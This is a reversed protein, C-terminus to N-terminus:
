QLLILYYYYWLLIAYTLVFLITSSIVTQWHHHHHNNQAIIFMTLVISVIISSIRGFILKSKWTEMWINESLLIFTNSTKRTNQTINLRTLAVHLLLPRHQFVASTPFLGTSKWRQPLMIGKATLSIQLIIIDAYPWLRCFARLDVPIRPLYVRKSQHLTIGM